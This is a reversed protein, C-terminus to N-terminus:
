KRLQEAVQCSVRAVEIIEDFSIPSASGQKISDVFAKSCDNQGKDQSSLKMKSFGKFGFGVLKRFNDLQLVADNAFV